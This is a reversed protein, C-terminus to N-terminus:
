QQTIEPPAMRQLGMKHYFGLIDKYTIYGLLLLKSDKKRVVPVKDFDSNVLYQLADYLSDDETVYFLKRTILEEAIVIGKLNELEGETGSKDKFSFVGVIEKENNEIIYDMTGSKASLEQIEQLTDYNKIVDRRKYQSEFISSIRSQKLVFPNMDWVHAKSFFKNQVQNKYISWKSSLILSIVAVLMLPPLLEYGGTLETVIVLAAISANAVGAFFSAMGVVIFPTVEPVLEPYFHNSVTGVLGGLMGGIFLSPGFIGGSGGSQITFTTTVIKLLALIAFLRTAFLWDAGLDGNIAQQLFGFGEGIAQPYFLGVCGVLFGGFTALYPQKLPLKAFVHDRIGHFVKVYLYGGLSCLVGLIAYFILEVPSHFASVHIEFLHSFGIFSCFVTYSTVSSIICPVLADSEFDEKYLVEVATLAGGLPARFIAGLGGATGALLLTRRARAGMKIFKGFLSGLGAGIQAMPGEKGGSGGFGITALTALAKAPATRKRISGSKNHFADLFLETGTGGAEPAWFRVILGAIFGGVVPLIFFVLRRTEGSLVSPEYGSGPQLVSFNALVEFNYHTIFILAKYFLVTILGTIIGIIFSYLYVTRSDIHTFINKLSRLYGM